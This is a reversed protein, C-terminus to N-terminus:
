KALFYLVFYLLNTKFLIWKLVAKLGLNYADKFRYQEMLPISKVVMDFARKNKFSSKQPNESNAYCIEILSKLESIVRNFYHIKSYKNNIFVRLESLFSILRVPQNPNFKHTASGPNKIYVYWISSNVLIGKAQRLIKFNWVNDEGYSLNDPFKIGKALEKKIIKAAPGRNIYSNNDRFKVKSSESNLDFMYYYIMTEDHKNLCQTNQSRKFKIDKVGDAVHVRGYVIDGDDTRLAHIGEEIFYPSVYDDADIYTIFDGTATETGFNRAASVGSHPRHYIHLFSYDQLFTDLSSAYEPENGDDVMIVEMSGTFTQNNLSDLCREIDSKSNKYVPIIVSIDM